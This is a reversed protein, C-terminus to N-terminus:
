VLARLADRHGEGAPTTQATALMTDLLAGLALVDSAPTLPAGEARAADVAAAPLPAEAVPPEGARAGYGFGCLVPRGDPALLVHGPVVAGHVIGLEHLDALTVAVEAVVAAVEEDTLDSARALDPGDVRATALVPDHPPGELAVLQVVGPLQALALLERERRLRAATAADGARKVYPRPRAPQEAAGSM